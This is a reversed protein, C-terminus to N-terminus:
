LGKSEEFLKKWEGKSFKTREDHYLLDTDDDGADGLKQILILLFVHGIHLSRFYINISGYRQYFIERTRIINKGGGKYIDFHGGSYRVMFEEIYLSHTKKASKPTKTLITNCHSM